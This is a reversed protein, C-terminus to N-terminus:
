MWGLDQFVKRFIDEIVGLEADGDNPVIQAYPMLIEYKQVDQGVSSRMYDRASMDGVDVLVEVFLNEDENRMSLALHDIHDSLERPAVFDAYVLGEESYDGEHEFGFREVLVEEVALIEYSPLIEVSLKEKSDIGGGIDARAYLYYEIEGDITIDAEYPIEFDFNYKEEFGDKVTFPEDLVIEDLVETQTTDGEEYVEVSGDAYHVEEIDGAELWRLKLQIKLENITQEAKGGILEVHGTIVDGQSFSAEEEDLVIKIKASGLGVAAKM